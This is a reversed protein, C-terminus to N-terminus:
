GGNMGRDMRREVWRDVIQGNMGMGSMRGDMGIWIWKDKMRGMM